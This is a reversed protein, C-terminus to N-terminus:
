IVTSSINNILEPIGNRVVVNIPNIRHYQNDSSLIFYEGYRIKDREIEAKDSSPLQGFIGEAESETLITGMSIM